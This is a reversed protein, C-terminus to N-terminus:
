KTSDIKYKQTRHMEELLTNIEVKLEIMRMERGVSLANFRELDHIAEELEAEREKQKSFDFKLQANLTTLKQASKRQSRNYLFILPFAMLLLFLGTATAQIALTRVFRNAQTTDRAVVLAYGRAPGTTQYRIVVRLEGHMQTQVSQVFTQEAAPDSLVHLANAGASNLVIKCSEQLCKGPRAGGVILRWTQPGQHAIAGVLDFQGNRSFRNLAEENAAYGLAYSEGTQTAQALFTHGLIQETAHTANLLSLDIQELVYARQQLFSGVSFVLVGATYILAALIFSGSFRHSSHPTKKNM